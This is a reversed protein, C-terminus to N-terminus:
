KKELLQNLFHVHHLTDHVEMLQKEAEEKYKTNQQQCHNVISGLEHYVDVITMQERTDLKM